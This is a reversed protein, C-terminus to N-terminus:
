SGGQARELARQLAQFTLLQVMERKYEAPGRIDSIPRADQAALNAAEKLDKDALKKGKLFGETRRSKLVMPGAATLGIGAAECIGREDLRLQGAVGVVPFDGAGRDVRVYASGTRGSPIPVRIERLLEGQKLATQFTDVFFEEAGIMREGGQGMAVMSAGLAMMVAPLDNAPDSHCINGGITGMNRVLPDGIHGAADSIVPYKAQILESTELDVYRTLSGILLFGDSERIYELDPVRTIDVLLKPSVFRYRLLPILSHGGALVKADDGHKGLLEVAESISHPAIYDFSPPIV